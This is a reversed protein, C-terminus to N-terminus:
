TSIVNQAEKRKNHTALGDAKFKGQRRLKGIIYYSLRLRGKYKEDARTRDCASSHNPAIKKVGGITKNKGGLM